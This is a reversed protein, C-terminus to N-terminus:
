SGGQLNPNVGKREPSKHPSSLTNNKPSFPDNKSSSSDDKEIFRRYSSGSESNDSDKRKNKPTSGQKSNTEKVELYDKKRNNKKSRQNETEEYQHENIVALKPNM